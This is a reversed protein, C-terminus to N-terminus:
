RDSRPLASNLEVLHGDIQLLLAWIVPCNTTGHEPFVNMDSM